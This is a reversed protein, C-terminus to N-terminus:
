ISLENVYLSGSIFVTNVTEMAVGGGNTYMYMFERNFYISSFNARPVVHLEFTVNNVYPFDAIQIESSMWSDSLTHCPPSCTGDNTRRRFKLLANAGLTQTLTLIWNGNGYLAGKIYLVEGSTLSKQLRLTQPKLGIDIEFLRLKRLLFTEQGPEFAIGSVSYGDSCVECSSADRDYVFSPCKLTSLCLRACAVLSTDLYSKTVCGSLQLDQYVNFRYTFTTASQVQQYYLKAVLAGLLLFSRPKWEM